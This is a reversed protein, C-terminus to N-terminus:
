ARAKRRTFDTRVSGFVDADAAAAKGTLALGIGQWPAAAGRGRGAYYLRYAGAAMLVACPSGVSGSDWASPDTSPELLPRCVDVGAVTDSAPLQLM